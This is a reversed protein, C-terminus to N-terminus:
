QSEQLFISSALEKGLLVMAGEGELDAARTRRQSGPPRLTKGIADPMVWKSTGKRTSDSFSVRRALLQIYMRTTVPLRGVLVLIGCRNEKLWLFVPRNPHRIFTALNPSIQLLQVYNSWVEGRRLPGRGLFTYVHTYVCSTRLAM